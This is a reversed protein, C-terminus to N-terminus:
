RLGMLVMCQAMVSRIKMNPAPCPDSFTTRVCQYIQDGYPRYNKGTAISTGNVVDLIVGERQSPSASSWDRCTADATLGGFHSSALAVRPPTVAPSSISLLVGMSTTVILTRLM